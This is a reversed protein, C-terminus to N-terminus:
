RIGSHLKDLQKLLATKEPGSTKSLTLRLEALAKILDERQM